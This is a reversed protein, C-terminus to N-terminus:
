GIRGFNKLYQMYRLALGGQWWTRAVPWTEPYAGWSWTPDWAGAETISDIILDAEFQATEAIAGYFQGHPSDIFSSPRCVYDTRWKTIDPTVNYAVQEKLKAAFASMDVLDFHNDQSCYEYFRIFCAVEHIEDLLPGAMYANVAKQALVATAHRLSANSEAFRLVFGALAITPNYGWAAKLTVADTYTWWPAHPYDNNSPLMGYWYGEDRNLAADLYELLRRALPLAKDAIGLEFLIETAVWSAMPSSNPNWCDAELAHGFGGDANQYVALAKLVDDRAGNEFHYRWRTLDVPRAPRDSGSRATDFMTKNFQM